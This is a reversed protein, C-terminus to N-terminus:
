AAVVLDLIGDEGLDVFAYRMGSMVVPVIRFFRRLWELLQEADESVQANELDPPPGCYVRRNESCVCRGSKCPGSLCGRRCVGGRSSATEEQQQSPQIVQTYVMWTAFATVSLALIVLIVILVLPMRRRTRTRAQHIQAQVDGRESQESFSATHVQNDAATESPASAARRVVPAGCANCFKADDAMRAGCKGCFM